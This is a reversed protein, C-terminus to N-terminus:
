KAVTIVEISYSSAIYTIVNITTIVQPYMLDPNPNVQELTVYAINGVFKIDTIKAGYGPHPVNASITVKNVESNIIERSIQIDTLYNTSVPVPVEPKKNDDIFTLANELWIAAEERSIAKTPNFKNDKELEEFQLLLLKQIANKYDSKVKDEDKYTVYREILNYEVKRDVQTILHYAFEQKSIAANPNVDKDFVVGNHYAELMATSYWQGDKAKTYVDSLKPEKVFKIHALSLEFADDLLVAAQAYTLSDKPKFQNKNSGKIIGREKLKHIHKEGRSGKTDNFASTVPTFALTTILALILFTFFTKKM